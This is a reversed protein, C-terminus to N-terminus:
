HQCNSVPLEVSSLPPILGTKVPVDFAVDLRTFTSQMPHEVKFPVEVQFVLIFFFCSLNIIIVKKAINLDIYYTGKNISM